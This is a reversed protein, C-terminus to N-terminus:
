SLIENMPGTSDQFSDVPVDMKQLMTVFLNSLPVDESFKRYQGHKIGVNSGGALILPYNRTVHTESTCCGYLVMTNDLLTGEGEQVSDLRDLFWAHQEALFKSYTSWQQYDTRQHSINHSTLNLGAGKPFQKEYGQESESATQYTAVRTSNTQFALVLLDYKSRIYEKTSEPSIEFDSASANVEPKAVDLWKKSRALGQEVQRVSSLYEDMKQQDRKGLRRNLSSAEDRVTDLISGKQQFAQQQQVKSQGSPVGFLREFIDQPRHLSPIPRGVKDYSLTHSKYPRNVGGSTSLVMSPFRNEDGIAMAAVQDVSVSQKYLTGSIDAGTLFVDGAKHGSVRRGLPHSLGGFYTLKDRFPELSSLTATTQYDRGEGVPFWGYKLRDPHDDPPMPVGYHFYTFCVRPKIKEAPAALSMGELWPLAICVGTGRLFIRRSLHWSKM